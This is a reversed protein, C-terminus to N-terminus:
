ATHCGADCRLLSKEVDGDDDKVKEKESPEQLKNRETKKRTTSNSKVKADQKTDDPYFLYCMETMATAVRNITTSSGNPQSLLIANAEIQDQHKAHTRNNQANGLCASTQPVENRTTAPKMAKSQQITAEHFRKPRM